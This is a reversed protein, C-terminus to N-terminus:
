AKYQIQYIVNVLWVLRGSNVQEQAVIITGYLGYCSIGNLLRLRTVHHISVRIWLASTRWNGRSLTVVKDGYHFEFQEDHATKFKPNRM